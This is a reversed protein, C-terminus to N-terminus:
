GQRKIDGAYYVEAGHKFHKAESGVAEVQGCADYGLVIPEGKVHFFGMRKKCDVPNISVAHVRVLIDRPGLEPKKLTLLTAASADKGPEDFGLAKIETVEM